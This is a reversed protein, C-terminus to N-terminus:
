WRHILHPICPNRDPTFNFQCIDKTFPIHQRDGSCISLRGRCCQKTCDHFIEPFACKNYAIDAIRVRANHPLCLIIRNNHCLHATKLKLRNVCETGFDTRDQIDRRIMQVAMVRHFSIDFGFLLNCFVLCFFIDTNQIILIIHGSFESFSDFRLHNIKGAAASQFFSNIQFIAIDDIASFIRLFDTM